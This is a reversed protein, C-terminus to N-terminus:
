ELALTVRLLREVSLVDDIALFGRRRIRSGGERWHSGEEIEDFVLDGAGSAGEVRSLRDLDRPSYSRVAISRLGGDFVIARRTTIAYVTRRAVFAALLPSLLMGAGVLLFPIGFLPFVRQVLGTTGQGGPTAHSGANTASSAMVTWFVAFGFFVIGFLFVPVASRALRWPRPQGVWVLDEDERLESEVRSRLAPSLQVTEVIM